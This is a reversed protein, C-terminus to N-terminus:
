EMLQIKMGERLRSVGATAIREGTQIGGLLWMNGVGTVAGVEVVRAHVTMRKEDIVWVHPTGDDGYFVAAAPVIFRDGESDDTGLFRLIINGTM